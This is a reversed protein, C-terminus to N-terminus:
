KTRQIELPSSHGQRYPQSPRAIDAATFIRPYPIPGNTRAPGKLVYLHLDSRRTYQWQLTLTESIFHKDSRIMLDYPATFGREPAKIVIKRLCFTTEGRHRMIINCKSSDTCYVSRDNRLINEPCYERGLRSDAHLGGDCSVIEMRLAGPFVQGRYGYSFPTFDMPYPDGDLRRRKARRRNADTEGSYTRTGNDPSNLHPMPQDLLSSLSSSAENLREVAQQITGADGPFGPRDHRRARYARQFREGAVVHPRFRIASTPAQIDAVPIRTAEPVRAAHRRHIEDLIASERIILHRRIEEPSGAQNTRDM